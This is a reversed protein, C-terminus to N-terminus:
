DQFPNDRAEKFLTQVQVNQDELEQIKNIANQDIRPRTVTQLREAVVEESPQIQNLLYIRVILFGYIGFLVVVILIVRYRKIFAIIPNIKALAQKIDLKM